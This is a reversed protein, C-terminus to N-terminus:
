LIRSEKWNYWGARNVKMGIFEQVKCHLVRWTCGGTLVKCELRVTSGRQETWLGVMKNPTSDIWAVAGHWVYRVRGERGISKQQLIRSRDREKVWVWDKKFHQVGEGTRTSAGAGTNCLGKAEM